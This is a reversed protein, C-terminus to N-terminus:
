PQSFPTGAVWRAYAPLASGGLSNTPVPTGSTAVFPPYPYTTSGAPWWSPPSAGSSPLYLSNPATTAYGSTNCDVSSTNVYDYNCQKFIYRATVGDLNADPNTGWEGGTWGSRWMVRNAQAGAATAGYTFSGGACSQMGTIGLVNFAYAYWYNFAMPGAARLPGPAQSVNGATQAIGACDNVTSNSNSPDTFTSRYGVCHNSFFTHYTANGHTEDGDCNNSRNGEFLFHHTGAYHSGNAAMDNWYNGILSAQDYFSMDFYSYAIVNGSAARGVMGKGGKTVITNEILNETSASSVGIPYEVGNNQCDICDHFWSNVVYNRTSGDYNVAGNIWYNVEVNNIWSLASFMHNFGGGNVRTLTFNEFGVQTVFAVPTTGSQQTPWYLRADHSGSSRFGITLPTDFTITTGSIASIRKVEQTVRNVCFTYTCNGADPNAVRGVVPTPATNLFEASAQITAQGPVPNTTTQLVPAEDILVYQGVSFNTNSTVHVQTDGQAADATLTTGCNNTTPNINSAPWACGAWGQNFLGTPTILFFGSANPCNATSGGIVGCSPPSTYLAKPGDYTQLVVPWCPTGTAANCTGVQSGLGRLTIGKNVVIPLQSQAFNYTGAAFTIVQGATCSSIAATLHTADDGAAPPTVGSATLATCVTNRTPIGGISTLGANGWNSAINNAAPIVLTAPPPAPSGASFPLLTQAQVPWTLLLAILLTGLRNIM